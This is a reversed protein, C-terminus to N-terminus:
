TSATRCRWSRPKPCIRARRADELREGAEPRVETGRATHRRRPQEDPPDAPAAARLSRRLAVHAAAAARGADTRRLSVQSGVQRPSGQDTGGRSGDGHGGRSRTGARAGGRQRRGPPSNEAHFEFRTERRGRCTASGQSSHREFRTCCACAQTAQRRGSRPSASGVSQARASSIKQRDLAEGAAERRGERSVPEARAGTPASKAPSRTM